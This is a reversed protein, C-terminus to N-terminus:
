LGASAASEGMIVLAMARSGKKGSEINQLTFHDAVAHQPMSM